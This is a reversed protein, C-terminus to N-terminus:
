YYQFFIWRDVTESTINSSTKNTLNDTEKIIKNIENFDSNVINGDNDGEELGILDYNDDINTNGICEYDVINVYDEIQEVGEEIECFADMKITEQLNRLGYKIKFTLYVLFAHRTNIQSSTIGRLFLTPGYINKGNIEKEGNMTLRYIDVWTVAPVIETKKVCSGTIINIGYDTSVCSSCFYNNNIICSKCYDVLCKTVSDQNFICYNIDLKKNYFLINDKM